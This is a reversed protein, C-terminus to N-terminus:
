VYKKWDHDKLPATIKRAEDIFLKAVPTLSRHRLKTIGIPGTTEPVKVPLVRLSGRLPSFALLSGPLVSVYRGTDLLSCTVQISMSSVVASPVPIEMGRFLSEMRRGIATDANPLIWDQRVLEAPGIARRRGSLPHSSGAVVFLKEEFLADFELDSGAEEAPPRGLVLDAEHERLAQFVLAREAELISYRIAPHRRSISDLIRPMLGAGVAHACAVRIIGRTPDALQELEESALRLEDFINMSRQLLVKGQATPQVGFHTRDLLVGGFTDELGAIAKSVAPQSLGLNEAAKALSGWKVAALLIRMERLKVRRALKDDTATNKGM